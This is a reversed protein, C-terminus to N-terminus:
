VDWVWWWSSRRKSLNESGYEEIKCTENEIRRGQLSCHRDRELIM